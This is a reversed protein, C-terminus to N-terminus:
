KEMEFYFAQKKDASIINYLDTKAFRKEHRQPPIPLRAVNLDNNPNGLVPEVGALPM